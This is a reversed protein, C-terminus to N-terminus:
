LVLILNHFVILNQVKELVAELNSEYAKVVEQKSITGIRLREWVSKGERFKFGGKELPEWDGAPDIRHEGIYPFHPQMYHLVMKKGPYQQRLKLAAENVTQPLVTKLKDDWGWKWVANLHAFPVKQVGHKKLMYLSINPNASIYIINPYNGRITKRSWEVTSSGVSQVLSLEGPIFNVRKFTDYRCADLIFLIDWEKRRGFITRPM